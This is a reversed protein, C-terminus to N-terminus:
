APKASSDKVPEGPIDKKGEPFKEITTKEGDQLSELLVSEKKSDINIIKFKKNKLEIVNEIKAAYKTNDLTFLLHATFENWQVDMDKVLIILKDGRQLTLVSVDVQRKGIGPVVKEETKPEYKLLKFGEVVQDLKAFYTRVNGKLNLGFRLSGDPSKMVSKFRLMFPDPEVKLVRLKHTISPSSNPDTPNTKGNYEEINSFGDNDSDKDADAPDSPNLAYQREWKDPIGDKDGDYDEREVLDKPQETDCFPCKVAEFPIPRRCDVCWVRKEVVFMTKNTWQESSLQLPHEISAMADNFVKTDIQVADAYKPKYGKIEQEFKERDSRMTGIRFALYLLSAILFVLVLFSLIKDYHSKLWSFINKFSM